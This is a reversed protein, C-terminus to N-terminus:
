PTIYKEVELAWRAQPIAEDISTFSRSFTVDYFVDLVRADDMPDRAETATAAIEVFGRAVAEPGVIDRIRSWLTDANAGPADSQQTRVTLEVKPGIDTSVIRVNADMLHHRVREALHVVERDVRYIEVGASQLAPKWVDISPVPIYPLRSWRPRCLL